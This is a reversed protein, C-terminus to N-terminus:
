TTAGQEIVQTEEDDHVGSGVTVTGTGDPRVAVTITPGLWRRKIEVNISCQHLRASACADAAVQIIQTDGASM